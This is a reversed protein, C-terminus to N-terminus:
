RKTNLNLGRRNIASSFAEALANGASKFDQNNNLQATQITINEITIGTSAGGGVKMSALVDRLNAFLATQDANLFAEPNSLTGHVMAPGTYDVIGGKKYADIKFFSKANTYWWNDFLQNGKDNPM